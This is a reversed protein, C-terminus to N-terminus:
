PKKFYGMADNKYCEYCELAALCIARAPDRDYKIDARGFICGYLGNRAGTRHMTFGLGKGILKLVVLWAENINTSYRPVNFRDLGKNFRWHEINKDSIKLHYRYDNKSRTLALGMVRKAITIDLRSNFKNM